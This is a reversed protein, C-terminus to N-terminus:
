SAVYGSRAEGRPSSKAQDLDQQRDPAAHLDLALDEGVDDRADRPSRAPDPGTITTKL